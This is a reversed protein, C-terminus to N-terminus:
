SYSVELKKHNTSSKTCPSWTWLTSSCELIPRAYLMAIYAQSKIELNCNAIYILYTQSILVGNAKKCITEVHM